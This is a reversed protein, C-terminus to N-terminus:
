HGQLRVLVFNYEQEKTFEFVKLNYLKFNVMCEQLISDIELANSVMVPRHTPGTSFFLVRDPGYYCLINEGHKIGYM